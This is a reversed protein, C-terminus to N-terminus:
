SDLVRSVLKEDEGGWNLNRTVKKLQNAFPVKDATWDRALFIFGYLRTAWGIVPIKRLSSKLTILMARHHSSFYAFSWLYSLLSLILSSPRQLTPFSSM